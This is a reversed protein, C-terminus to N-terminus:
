LTPYFTLQFNDISILFLFCIKLNHTSMFWNQNRVYFKLSIRFIMNFPQFKCKIYIIGICSVNRMYLTGFLGYLKWKLGVLNVVLILIKKSSMVFCRSTSLRKLMTCLRKLGDFLNWIANECRKFIISTQFILVFKTEFFICKWISPFNDFFYDLTLIKYFAIFFSHIEFLFLNFWIKLEINIKM